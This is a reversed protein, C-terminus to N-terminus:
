SPCIRPVPVSKGALAYIIHRNLVHPVTLSALGIFFTRNLLLDFDSAVNGLVYGGAAAIPLLTAIAVAVRSGQSNWAALDINKMHESAHWLVFYITFSLHVPLFYFVCFLLASSMGRGIHEARLKCKGSVAASAAVAILVAVLLYALSGRLLPVGAESLGAVIPWAQATPSFFPVALVITAEIAAFVFALVGEGSDSEECFHFWSLVFFGITVFLPFCNWLLWVGTAMAIYILVYFAFECRLGLRKHADVIDAAGHPLGALAAISLLVPVHLGAPFLLYAFLCAFTGAFRLMSLTSVRLRMADCRTVNPNKSHGLDGEDRRDM